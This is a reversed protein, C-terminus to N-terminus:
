IRPLNAYLQQIRNSEVLLQLVLTPKHKPPSRDIPVGHHCEQGAGDGGVVWAVDHVAGVDFVEGAADDQVGEVWGVQCEVVCEWCDIDM